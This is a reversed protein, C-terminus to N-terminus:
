SGVELKKFTLLKDRYYEYQQRRATLEAPLGVSLDNVLADFKDLLLMVQEQQEPSPVPIEFQWLKKSDLSAVSGGTRKVTRLIEARSSRLAHFVYRASIGERPTVAKLDQNIAVKIPLYAVPLTHELISSRSVLAVSDPSIVKTSSGVVAEQTIYDQTQTIAIVGMDKPSVWPISGNKWFESRSKSPTGGGSWVGIDKLPVLEAGERVLSTFVQSQYYLYQQIRALREAELEAELMSFTDLIEVIARQVELPPVPIRVKMFRPKSINIRTVGSATSRIQKRISESRFLHKTFDPDLIDNQDPRVIFCFSNLYISESPSSTVVSSLGVEDLSESSGTILIDGLQISNQREGEKVKVFDPANLDLSPNAFINKYSAFRANGDSFDAKTKGTLGPVTSALDSLQRYAVGDPCHEAILDDIRSM